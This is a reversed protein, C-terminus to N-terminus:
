GEFFIYLIKSEKYEVNNFRIPDFQILDCDADKKVRKKKANVCSNRIVCRMTDVCCLKWGNMWGGM